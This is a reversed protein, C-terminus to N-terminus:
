SFLIALYIYDPAWIHRARLEYQSPPHLWDQLLLTLQYILYIFCFPIWKAEKKLGSAIFISENKAQNRMASKNQKWLLNKQM